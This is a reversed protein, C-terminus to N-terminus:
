STQLRHVSRTRWITVTLIALSVLAITWSPVGPLSVSAYPIDSGFRAGWMLIDLLMKTIIRFPELTLTLFSLSQPLFEGIASISALLAGVAMILPVIGLVLANVLPAILSVEGLSGMLLPLVAFQTAVTATLNERMAFFTPISSFWPAVLPGIHILGLTAIFSLQFSINWVVITPNELAMLAGAVFLSRTVDVDRGIGRGIVIVLAMISARVVTAGLGTIIAFFIIGIASLALSGRPWVSLALKRVAEAVLTVNYGSLVVVHIIGTVRFALSLDEPLTSKEGLLIGALLSAHPEPLERYMGGLIMSKLAFLKHFLFYGHEKQSLVLVDARQLIYGVRASQLHRKYHFTRGNETEFDEPVVLEGDVLVEDGYFFSEYPETRVLIRSLKRTPTEVGIVLMQSHERVDPEQLIKGRFSINKEDVFSELWPDYSQRLVSHTREIYLFVLLCICICSFLFYRM